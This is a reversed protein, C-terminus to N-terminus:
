DKWLNLTKLFAEARQAATAHSLCMLHDDVTSKDRRFGRASCVIGVLQNTFEMALGKDWLEAEAEHMANLDKLYNPIVRVSASSPWSRRRIHAAEPPYYVTRKLRYPSRRPDDPGAPDYIVELGCAEARAIRRPDVLGAPDYKLELGCATAIAIRQQEPTM